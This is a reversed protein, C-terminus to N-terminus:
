QPAYIQQPGIDQSLNNKLNELISIDYTVTNNDFNMGTFDKGTLNELYNSISQMGEPNKTQIEIQNDNTFKANIFTIGANKLLARVENGNNNSFLLSKGDPNFNNKKEKNIEKLEIMTSAHDIANSKIKKFQEKNHNLKNNKNRKEKELAPELVTKNMAPFYLNVLTTSNSNLSRNFRKKQLWNLNKRDKLMFNGSKPDRELCYISELKKEKTKFWQDNKSIKNTLNNIRNDIINISKEMQSTQKKEKQFYEQIKDLSSNYFKCAYKYKNIRNNFTKTLEETHKNVGNNDLQSIEKEFKNLSLNITNLDNKQKSIENDNANWLDNLLENSKYKELKSEIKKLKREFKNIKQLKNSIQSQIEEKICQQAARSLQFKRLNEQCYQGKPLNKGNINLVEVLDNAAEARKNNYTQENIGKNNDSCSKLYQTHKPKVERALDTTDSLSATLDTKPAIANWGYEKNNIYSKYQSDYTPNKIKPKENAIHNKWDKNSSIVMIEGNKIKQEVEYLLDDYLSTVAHNQYQYSQKILKQKEHPKHALQLLNTKKDKLECIKNFLDSSKKQQEKSHWNGSEYMANRDNEIQNIDNQLSEITQEVNIANDQSTKKYKDYDKNSQRGGSILVSSHNLILTDLQELLIVPKGSVLHNNISNIDQKQKNVTQHLHAIREHQNNSHMNVM